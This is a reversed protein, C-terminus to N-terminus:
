TFGTQVSTAADLCHVDSARHNIRGDSQPVVKFLLKSEFAPRVAPSEVVLSSILLQQLM